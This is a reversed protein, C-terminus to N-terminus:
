QIIGRIILPDLTLEPFHLPKGLEKNIFDHLCFAWLQFGNGYDVPWKKLFWVLKKFCTECGINAKVELMWKEFFRGAYIGEEAFEHLRKWLMRGALADM